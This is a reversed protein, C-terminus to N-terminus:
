SLMALGHDSLNFDRSFELSVAEQPVKVFEKDSDKYDDLRSDM